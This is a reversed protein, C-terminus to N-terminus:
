AGRDCIACRYPMQFDFIDALLLSGDLHATQWTCYTSTLRPGDSRHSPDM